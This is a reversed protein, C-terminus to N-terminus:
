RAVAPLFRVTSDAQSWVYIPGDGPPNLVFLGDAGLPTIQTPRVPLPLTTVAGTVLDLAALTGPADGGAAAIYLVGANVHLAAPRSLEVAIPEVTGDMERRVRLAEGELYYLDRGSFVAARPQAATMPEPGSGPRHALLWLADSNFLAAQSGDAAVVVASCPAEVPIAEEVVPENPLGSVFQVRPPDAAAILATSGDDSLALATVPAITGTVTAATAALYLGAPGAAVAVQAAVAAHTTGDPVPLAEGITASGVFGRVVRITHGAPDWILGSTPVRFGAPQAAACALTAFLLFGRTM